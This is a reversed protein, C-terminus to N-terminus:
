EIRPCVLRQGDVPVFVLSATKGKANTTFIFRGNFTRTANVSRFENEPAPWLEAGGRGSSINLYDATASVTIVDTGFRGSCGYRGEFRVFHKNLTKSKTQSTSAASLWRSFNILGTVAGVATFLGVVLLVAALKLAFQNALLYRQASHCTARSRRDSKSNTASRSRQFPLSFEAPKLALHESTLAHSIADFDAPSSRSIDATIFYNGNGFGQANPNRTRWSLWIATLLNRWTSDKFLVYSLGPSPERLLESENVNKLWVFKNIFPRSIGKSELLSALAHMQKRNQDTANKWQEGYRVLLSDGQLAIANRGHEKLEIVACLSGLQYSGAPAGNLDLLPVTAGDAFVALIILDIDETAHGSCTTGVILRIDCRVSDVIGPWYEIIWRKLCEAADTEAPGGVGVLRIM